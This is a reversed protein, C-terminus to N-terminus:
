RLLGLHKKTSSKVKPSHSLSNGPTGRTCLGGQIWRRKERNTLQSPAASLMEAALLFSIFCRWIQANLKRKPIALSHLSKMGQDETPEDRSAPTDAPRHGKPGTHWGRSMWQIRATQHVERQWTAKGAALCGQYLMRQNWCPSPKSTKHTSSVPSTWYSPAAAPQSPASTVQQLFHSNGRRAAATM